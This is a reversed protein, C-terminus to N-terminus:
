GYYQAADALTGAKIAMGKVQGAVTPYGRTNLTRALDRANMIKGNGQTEMWDKFRIYLATLPTQVGDTLNVTESLFWGITDEEQRYTETALAVAEPTQLGERCYRVAGEVAWSLLAMQGSKSGDPGLGRLHAKVMPDKIQPPHGFPVLRMRRWIADDNNTSPKDNASVWLKFRPVFSIAAQYKAAGNLTDQGTMSKVLGTNWAKGKTPESALVMRKGFLGAIQHEKVGERDDAILAGIPLSTSLGPGLLATLAEIFTSKGSNAVGEALFFVEEHAHGMLTYGAATQLFKELNGDGGTAEYIYSKFVKDVRGPQYDCTARELLLHERRPSVLEGTRLDVVGNGVALLFPDPDWADVPIYVREDSEALSTAARVKGSSGTLVGWDRLADARGTNGSVRATAEEDRIRAPLNKSMEAVNQAGGRSTWCSGSWVYWVGNSCRIENGFNDVFRRANGVDTLEREGPLDGEPVVSSWAGPPVGDDEDGDGPDNTDLERAKAEAIARDIDSGSLPPVISQTNFSQAAATLHNVDIGTRLLPRCFDILAELPQDLRARGAVDSIERRLSRTIQKAQDQTWSHPDALTSNEWAYANDSKHRSPPVVVLADEGIVDIGPRLGQLTPIVDGSEISYFLHRNGGGTLSTLTKALRLRGTQGGQQFSIVIVGSARGTVIGISWPPGGDVWMEAPDAGDEWDDLVPHKGASPCAANGCTCTGAADFTHVPTVRWGRQTTYYEAWRRMPNEVAAM